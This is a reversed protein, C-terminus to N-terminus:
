ESLQCDYESTEQRNRTKWTYRALNYVREVPVRNGVKDKGLNENNWEVIVGNIISTLEDAISIFESMAKIFSEMDLIAILQFESENEKRRKTIPRTTELVGFGFRGFDVLSKYKNRLLAKAGSFGHDSNTLTVVTPNQFNDDKFSFTRRFAKKKSRKETALLWSTSAASTSMAISGRRFWGVAKRTRRVQRPLASKQM